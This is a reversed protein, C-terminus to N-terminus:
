RCHLGRGSCCGPATACSRFRRCGAPRAGGTLAAEAELLATRLEALTGLVPMSALFLGGPKLAQRIQLLAGPLDNIWHLSLPAMILDFKQTGFPLAEGDIAVPLGGAQAALKASFDASVVQIGRQALPLALSGRGGIELASAFKVTTDDLRDLLRAALDDLIAAVSGLRAAARERQRRVAQLDFIEAVSAHM